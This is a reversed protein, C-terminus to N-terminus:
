EERQDAEGRALREADARSIGGEYELIAAREEFEIVDNAWFLPDPFAAVGCAAPDNPNEPKEFRWLGGQAAGNHRKPLEGQALMEAPQPTTANQDPPLYRDFADSFSSLQYGKPTHGDALRITGSSVHLPKLLRAVQTKTIPKGAKFEPWPRDDLTVLYAVLEESPLRDVEKTAFAARIDALLAVRTSAGDDGFTVLRRATQRSRASWEGDAVDAVAFLPRWNDAARNYISEPMAPDAAKLEAIQDRTWRAAKRALTDLDAAQDHRLSDVQEDPRRRKLHIVISRDEITGPLRGITALAVPAFVSFEYPEHNDGVNRIVLGDRRHGADLVGRLEENDRCYSDAEDLMLTPRVAEIVRFLAATSINSVSRSRNTLRGVVDLLTTKGCGKEPAEILLRPFIFFAGYAHNAVAWLAVSDRYADDLVVYRRIAAAIEDLLTAGDVPDPWPEVDRITLPRGRGGTDPVDAGRADAVIKDLMALRTIGLRKAAAPREREYTLLPMRALRAIEAQDDQESPAETQDDSQFLPAADALKGLTEATGGRDLWDTVDGKEPLDPLDLVRVSTAVPALNAAVQRAHNRGADDNDPLIVVDRGGFYSAFKARWKAAGGANCSTCIGLATLRLADKEGETIFVRGASALLEPLRYPVQRVGKVNWLWGGKGDPRRQRFTKPDLRCVQFLLEGREDRYDYTAVIKSSPEAAGNVKIGLERDLWDAAEDGTLGTKHCLLDLVGGGVKHEHDFWTGLKDGAIEVAFSGNTGFRLQQRTSHQKNPPGLLRRAIEDIRAALDATV